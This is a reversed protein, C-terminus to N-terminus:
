SVYKTPYPSGVRSASVGAVNSHGPKLRGNAPSPEATSIPTQGYRNSTRGRRMVLPLVPRPSTDRGAPPADDTVLRMGLHAPPTGVACGGRAPDRVLWSMAAVHEGGVWFAPCRDAAVGDSAGAYCDQTWEWVSGDLDAIGEATVAFSGQPKLARPATGETLYTSAWTLAPDTFIPGPKAPLVPAAMHTWEVMTPLRLDHRTGARIWGLYEGIDVYSLGTAPIAAPDAGAPARLALTCAGAAHCANWEAVSVEHKQVFLARGDPLIVPREAMAPMPLPEPGRHIAAAGLFAAGALAALGLGLTRSGRPFPGAPAPTM